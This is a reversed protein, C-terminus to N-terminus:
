QYREIRFRSGYRRQFYVYARDFILWLLEAGLLIVIGLILPYKGLREFIEGAFLKEVGLLYSGALLSIGLLVHYLVAKIVWIIVKGPVREGAQLRKEFWEAVLVYIGFGLFTAVYLKQPALLFGLIATGVMYLVGLGLSFNREMVGVLFSAAALFFLTSGEFYGGLMILIVGFAILIGTYAVEKSKLLM